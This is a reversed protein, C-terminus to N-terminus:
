PEERVLGQADSVRLFPRGHDWLAGGAGRDGLGGEYTVEAEVELTLPARPDIGQFSLVYSAWLRAAPDRAEFRREGGSTRVIWARAIADHRLIRVDRSRSSRGAGSLRGRFRVVVPTGTEAVRAVKTTLAGRLTGHVVFSGEHLAASPPGFVIAAAAAGGRAWGILGFLAKQLEEL